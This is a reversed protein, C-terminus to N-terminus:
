PGGEPLAQARGKWMGGRGRMHQYASDLTFGMYVAAIAPLLAAWLPSRRYFRLTPWFALAMLVWAALAALRAIGTGLVAMLPAALFTLALGLVTGLLLLPSHNLEAYASRAVMRRIDQLTRYPRISVVRETLTLEIPGQKKLAVALACDDIVNHRIAALGGAATLSRRAVLMCGGAAAATKRNHQNVWAFPYLMQFFFVFAPILARECLSVCRLKAMRSTLVLSGAQARAVLSRLTGPAHVIDADTLLLYEPPEPQTQALAVGQSVAWLKGTWGPAVQAGSLITLRGSAPHVAQRVADATGDQSNDDVLIISFTAPYDQALLSAISAPAVGAEDRAPVVAVVSPWSQPEAAAQEVDDRERARWFGGRAVILYIWIALALVALLASATL